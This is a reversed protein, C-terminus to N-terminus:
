FPLDYIGFPLRSGAWAQVQQIYDTISTANQAIVILEDHAVKSASTVGGSHPLTHAGMNGANDLFKVEGTPTRWKMYDSFTVGMQKFKDAQSVPLWEHYGGGKSQGAKRLCDM